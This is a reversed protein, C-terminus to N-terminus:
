ERPMIFMTDDGEGVVSDSIGQSSWQWEAKERITSVAQLVFIGDGSGNRSVSDIIVGSYTYSTAFAICASFDASQM